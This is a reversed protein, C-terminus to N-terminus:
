IFHSPHHACFIFEIPIERLSLSASEGLYKHKLFDKLNKIKKEWCFVRCLTFMLKPAPVSYYSSHISLYLYIDIILCVILIQEDSEPKRTLVQDFRLSQREDSIFYVYRFAAYMCVSQTKVNM